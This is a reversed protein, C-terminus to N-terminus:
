TDVVIGEGWLPSYIRELRPSQINDKEKRHAKGEEKKKTAFVIVQSYGATNFRRLPMSRELVFSMDYEYVEGNEMECELVFSDAVTVRM